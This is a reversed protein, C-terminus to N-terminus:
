SIKLNAKTLAWIIDLYDMDMNDIKYGNVKIIIDKPLKGNVSDMRWGM